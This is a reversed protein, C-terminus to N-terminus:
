RPNSEERHVDLLHNKHNRAFYQALSIFSLVFLFLSRTILSSGWEVNERVRLFNYLNVYRSHLISEVIGDRKALYEERHVPPIGSDIITRIIDETADLVLSSNDHLLGGMACVDCIALACGASLFAGATNTLNATGDERRRVSSVGMVLIDVMLIGCYSRPINLFAFGEGFLQRNDNSDQVFDEIDKVRSGVHQVGQGIESLFGHVHGANTIANNIPLCIQGHDRM